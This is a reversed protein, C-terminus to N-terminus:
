FLILALIIIALGSVIILIIKKEYRILRNCNDLKRQVLEQNYNLQLAKTFWEKAARYIEIKMLDDGKQMYDLYREEESSLDPHVLLQSM